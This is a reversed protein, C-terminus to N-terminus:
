PRAISSSAAVALVMLAVLGLGISLSSAKAVGGIIAPGLLVGTYALTSAVSVAQSAPM